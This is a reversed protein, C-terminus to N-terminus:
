PEHDKKMGPMEHTGGDAHSGGDVQRTKREAEHHHVEGRRTGGDRMDMGRM